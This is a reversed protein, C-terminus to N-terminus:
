SGSSRCAPWSPQGRRNGGIALLQRGFTTRRVVFAVILVRAGRRDLVLMPIGLVDGTGLCLLTPNRIQKLQGDALVLALGRGGVFLALTAVIPQLGVM